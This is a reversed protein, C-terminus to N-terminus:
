CLIDYETKQAFPALQAPTIPPNSAMTSATGHNIRATYDEGDPINVKDFWVDYRHLKLQQHLCSVFGLSERRGSSIFLDKFSNPHRTSM